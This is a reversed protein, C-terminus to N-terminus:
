CCFSIVGLCARPILLLLCRDALRLYNVTRARKYAADIPLNRLDLEAEILPPCSGRFAPLTRELALTQRRRRATPIAALSM